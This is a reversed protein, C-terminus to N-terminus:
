KHSIDRLGGVIITRKYPRSGYRRMDWKYRDTRDQSEVVYGEYAPLFPLADYGNRQCFSELFNDTFNQGGTEYSDQVVVKWSRRDAEPIRRCIEGMLAEFHAAVHKRSMKDTELGTAEPDAPSNKVGTTRMGMRMIVWDGAPADWEL